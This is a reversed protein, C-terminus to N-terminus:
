CVEGSTERGMAPDLVAVARVEVMAGEEFLGSVAVLTMAPYHRGMLKKWAGGLEKRAKRYADMDTVYVTMEVVNQPGGGAEEVVTLMNGLAKEFQAALGGPVVKHRGDGTPEGGIQGAIFLLEGARIGHSYGLAPGLAEPAVPHVNVM